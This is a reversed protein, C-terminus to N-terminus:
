FDGPLTPPQPASLLPSLSVSDSPVQGHVPTRSAHLVGVRFLGPILLPRPGLLRSPLFSLCASGPQVKKRRAERQPSCLNSFNLDAVPPPKRRLSQEVIAPSLTWSPGNWYTAPLFTVEVTGPSGSLSGFPACPVRGPFVKRSLPVSPDVDSPQVRGSIILGSSLYYGTDGPGLRQQYKEQSDTPSVLDRPRRRRLLPSRFRRPTDPLPDPYPPLSTSSLSVRTSIGNQTPKPPCSAWVFFVILTRPDL